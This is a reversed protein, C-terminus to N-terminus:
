NANILMRNGVRPSAMNEPYAFDGWKPPSGLEGEDVGGRAFIAANWTDDLCLSLKQWVTLYCPQVAETFMYTYM